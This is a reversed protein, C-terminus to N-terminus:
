EILGNELWQSCISEADAVAVSDEIGYKDVLLAALVAIDFEKGELSEWLYAASSNLTILKNFDIQEVGEGIVTQHGMILRLRFGNKIKM